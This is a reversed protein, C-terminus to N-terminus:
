FKINESGLQHTIGQKLLSVSYPFPLFTSKDCLYDHSERTEEKTFGAKGSSKQATSITGFCVRETTVNDKLALFMNPKRVASM